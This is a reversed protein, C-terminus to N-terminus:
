KVLDCDRKFMISFRRRRPFAIEAEGGVPFPLAQADGSM